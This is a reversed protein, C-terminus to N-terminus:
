ILQIIGGAVSGPEDMFRIAVALTTVFTVASCCCHFVSRKISLIIVALGKGRLLSPPSTSSLTGYLVLVHNSM